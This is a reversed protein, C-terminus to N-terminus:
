YLSKFVEWFNPFSKKVCAEGRIAIGPVKLGAMAFSMAIRHDDYTEIAAGKAPGGPITLSSEDATAAIGIRNLETVVAELRDCEKARLHAVNTIRTIGRAFAAVVGLTPVMDPMHGMDVTIGVLDGGKVAIGDPEIAVDCGMRGFVEALGVDGQRSAMNVGLVKIRAGTIAAAGWFYGAQSGDAEVTYTGPNYAQGGAVRFLTYGQRIVTVGFSQMIDVTMDVYPKSVPGRIVKISLGDRTKPALLLLSSLYQSSTGCDITVEDGQLSHGDVEVPPCGNANICRATVKLQNLSEVLEHIPREQMRPTGTLLYPGEGLAVVGTLLRMSTGSNALYIPTDTAALCGGRGQVIIDGDQDEAQIGMQQLAGLTLLTDESRLPNRITCLGDSLAAAIMTRHTYSKSGPVSVTADRVPRCAIEIM